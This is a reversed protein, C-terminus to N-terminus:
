FWKKMRRRSEAIEDIKRYSSRYVETVLKGQYHMSNLLSFLQGFDYAGYGPVLCASTEDCDSIHLHCLREGMAKIMNEIPVDSMRCQKTDLVFACDNQLYERMGLIFRPDQSKHSFVNEQIPYAGIDHGARYLRGFTEWYQEEEHTDALKGLRKEHKGHIVLYKAGLLAASNMFRKYLEIGEETRREYREFLLMSEMPSTFPHVSTFVAGYEDALNKLKKMFAPSFEQYANVFVEFVRFGMDLFVQLAKETDIPYLCATSIGLDQETIM